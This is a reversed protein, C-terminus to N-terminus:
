KTFEMLWAYMSIYTAKVPGTFGAAKALAEFEKQTRERGGTQIMMAMDVTFVGQAILNSEPIIPLIYEVVMMKGKEPLVKWCNKLIKTCQENTWDHIIWKMFIADGGSPVREFMDGSVHEVGPYPPATSIVHPLDFNIGKIHPHKATIMHITAGTGGGVDVLVKVDDFGRYTELLKKMLITSHNRMCENFLKNFRPDTGHHEFVTMGYAKQFPVGGELVADKLYYCSEMNIKDQNMLSMAALSVGDENKTLYKCVPAAGYKCSPHGDDDTEVSCSVVGYAALLCLIRDVMAVAEPNETPMRSVVDAPSLKAGPGAKVIIELLQLEVAAKVTMPLISGVVLQLAFTCAKDDEEPTLQLVDKISGMRAWGLMYTNEGGTNGPTAAEPPVFHHYMQLTPECEMTNPQLRFSFPDSEIMANPEWSGQAARLSSTEAELKFKLQRNIDELHRERKQLEEMHDLMLQTRRQRAQSLASELQRELQQLEKLSLPGLDEGLLNRHSRQLSEYKAKLKSIEQYTNRAQTEQDDAPLQSAYQYSQYREITKTIESSAFEFLKGRSSFIILAIEADCLVSLEYAKKLLGNRRKSFTVQRNIKNEIRKLEVRGRGM